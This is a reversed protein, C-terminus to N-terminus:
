GRKKDKELVTRIGSALEKPDFDGKFETPKNRSPSQRVQTSSEVAKVPDSEGSFFSFSDSFDENMSDSEDSDSVFASFDVSFEGPESEETEEFAPAFGTDSTYSNAFNQDIDGDMDISSKATQHIKGSVLDNFDGVNETDISGNDPEPVAAMSSDDLTINVRSGPSATTFINGVNDATPAEATLLEPIFKNILVNVGTGLAFFLAFFSLARILAVILSTQGFLLSTIFALVLAACGAVVGWKLNIM